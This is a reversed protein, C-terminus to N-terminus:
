SCATWLSNVHAPGEESFEEEEEEEDNVLSQDPSAEPQFKKKAEPCKKAIHGFLGCRFCQWEKARCKDPQHYGLCNACEPKRNSKSSNSPLVNVSNVGVAQAFSKSYMRIAEDQLAMNKAAEYTLNETALLKQLGFDCKAALDQLATIYDMVSENPKRNRTNFQLRKAQLLGKPAYEAKFYKM